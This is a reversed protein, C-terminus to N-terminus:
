YVFQEKYRIDTGTVDLQGMQSCIRELAQESQGAPFRDQMHKRFADAVTFSWAMYTTQRKIEEKTLGPVNALLIDVVRPDSVAKAYPTDPGFAYSNSGAALFRGEALINRSSNGVRVTFWGPEWVWKRLESDFCSLADRDLTLTVDKSEGPQLFVKQFAKLEKDAKFQTSVEDTLYLQVVEAGAKAGTNTVRVTVAFTDETDYCFTENMRLRDFTFTTYSLGHGFPFMPEVHRSDYYRYGVLPGEGYNVM